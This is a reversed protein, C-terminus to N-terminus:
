NLFKFACKILKNYVKALIYIMILVVIITQVKYLFSINNFETGPAQANWSREPQLRYLQVEPQLLRPVRDRRFITNTIKPRTGKGTAFMVTPDFQNELDILILKSQINEWGTSIILMLIPWWWNMSYKELEHFHVADIHIVM